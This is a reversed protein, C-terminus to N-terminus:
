NTQSLKPKAAGALAEEVQAIGVIVRGPFRLDVTKVGKSLLHQSADLGHLRQLAAEVDKEPLLVTVHNDLYLNWRRQGVRAAAKLKLSLDPTAELQNVLGAVEFQAGEGTVLPLATLANPSLNSMATGSRDIVYYQGGRQWVAFPVREVLSIELQNPFLRQVKASSVWDLGELLNKADGADFGVLSGGPRLGLAALVMEPDQHVLGKIRIDDAALGVFSSLKGPVKPWPSGQYNLYGGILIGHLITLGLFLVAGTRAAFRARRTHGYDLFGVRTGRRSYSPSKHDSMPQAVRRQGDM